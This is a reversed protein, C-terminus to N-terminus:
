HNHEDKHAGPMDGKIWDDEMNELHIKEDATGIHELQHTSTAIEKKLRDKIAIRVVANEQGQLEKRLDELKVNGDFERTKDAVTLIKTLGKLDADKGELSFSLMDGKNEAKISLDLHRALQLSKNQRGDVNSFNGAQLAEIYAKSKNNMFQYLEKYTVCKVEPKACVENAFEFFTELYAGSMWSSFHHGIHIPARNGNYNRAFYARYLNMMNAKVKKKQADSIVNLCSRDSNRIVKGNAKLATKELTKPEESLVRASDRFCFNYDMSIWKRAAGPEKIQGLPFNWIGYANKKPWYDEKDAQSTDYVFRSVKDGNENKKMDYTSMVRYLNDNFGLQPARFGVVDDKQFLLDIYGNPTTGMNNYTFLNKIIDDFQAFESVWQRETWTQGNYHGVTHSAIEHGEYFAENMQDVRLAVDKNNDGWGINSTGAKEKHPAHYHRKSSWEETLLYSPNIFFTFKVDAGTKAKYSKSFDRSYQWVDNNYSGDFALLVFQPPREIAKSQAAAFHPAVMSLAVLGNVLLNKKKGM